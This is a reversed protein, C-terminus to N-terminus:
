ARARLRARSSCETPRTCSSKEPSSGNTSSSTTHLATIIRPSTIVSEARKHERRAIQTATSATMPGAVLEGTPGLIRVIRVQGERPGIRVRGKLFRRLLEVVNALLITDTAIEKGVRLIADIDEWSIGDGYRREEQRVLGIEFGEERLARELEDWQERHPGEQIEREIDIRAVLFFHSACGPSREPASLSTASPMGPASGLVLVLAILASKM